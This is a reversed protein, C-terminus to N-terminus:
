IGCLFQVHSIVVCVLFFSVSKKERHFHTVSALHCILGGV